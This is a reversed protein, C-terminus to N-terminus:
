ARLERVGYYRAVCSNVWYTPDDTLDVFKNPGVMAPPNQVAPVLIPADPNLAAANRLIEERHYMLQQYPLLLDRLDKLALRTNGTVLLSLAFLILLMQRVAPSVHVGAEPRQSLRELLLLWTAFWGLLFLMYAAALVRDPVFGVAWTPGFFMGGLLIVWVGPVVLHWPAYCQPLCNAVLSARRPYSLVLLTALLLRADFVWDPVHHSAARLVASHGLCREM